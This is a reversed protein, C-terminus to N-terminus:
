FADGFHNLPVFDYTPSDVMPLYDQLGNYVLFQIRNEDIHLRHSEGKASSEGLTNDNNKSNSNEDTENPIAGM